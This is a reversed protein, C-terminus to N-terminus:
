PGRRPVVARIRDVLTQIWEGYGTGVEDQLAGELDVATEQLTRELLPMREGDLLWFRGCGFCTVHFVPEGVVKSMVKLGDLDHVCTEIAYPFTTLM